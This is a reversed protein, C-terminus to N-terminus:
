TLIRYNPSDINSSDNYWFRNILSLKDKLRQYEKTSLNYGIRHIDMSVVDYNNHIFLVHSLALYQNYPQGQMLFDSILSKKTYYNITIVEFRPKIGEVYLNFYPDGNANSLGNPTQQMDEMDWRQNLVRSVFSTGQAYAKSGSTAPKGVLTMANNFATQLYYNKHSAFYDAWQNTLLPETLDLSTVLGTYDTENPELYEGKFSLRFYIKSVGAKLVETYYCGAVTLGSHTLWALPSYDYYQNAIRLRFKTYNFDLLKTNNDSYLNTLSPLTAQGYLTIKDQYYGSCVFIDATAKTTHLVGGDTRQALYFLVSNKNLNTSGTTNCNIILDGDADITYGSGYYSFPLINSIKEEIGYTGIPFNNLDGEFSPTLGFFSQVSAPSLLGYYDVGGYTYKLYIRKSTKYIPGSIAGYPLSISVEGEKTSCISIILGLAGDPDSLLPAGLQNNDNVFVYRWAKINANVWNNFDSSQSHQIFVENSSKNFLEPKDGTSLLSKETYFDYHYGTGETYALSNGTWQKIFPTDIQDYYGVFNNQIDDLDISCVVQNSSDQKITVIFYYRYVNSSNKVIAYNCKLLDDISRGSKDRFVIATTINDEINFNNLENWYLTKADFYAKQTTKNEFLRTDSEGKKWWVNTLAVQYGLSM